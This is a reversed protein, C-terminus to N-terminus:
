RASRPYNTCYKRFISCISKIPAYHDAFTQLTADNLQVNSVAQRNARETAPDHVYIQAFAPRNDTPLLSGIRHYLDGHIRFNYAGGRSNAVAEDINVGLSIFSFVSNYARIYKRFHASARTTGRLLQSIQPPTPNLQPLEVAGEQCCLTFTPNRISSRSCCEQIFLRAHCSSCETDM